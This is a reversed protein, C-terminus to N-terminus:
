DIKKLMRKVIDVTKEVLGNSQHFYPCCTSLEINWQRCFNLFEISKFLNNDAVINKPIGFQSFIKKLKNIM